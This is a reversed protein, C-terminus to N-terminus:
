RAGDLTKNQVRSQEENNLGGLVPLIGGLRVISLM